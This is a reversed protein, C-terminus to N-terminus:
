FAMLLITLGTSWIEVPIVFKNFSTALLRGIGEYLAMVRFDGVESGGLDTLGGVILGLGCDVLGIVVVLEDVGYLNTDLFGTASGRYEGSCCNISPGM